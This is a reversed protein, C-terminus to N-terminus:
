YSQEVNARRHHEIFSQAECISGFGPTDPLSGVAGFREKVGASKVIVVFRSIGQPLPIEEIDYTTTMLYFGDKHLAVTLIADPALMYIHINQTYRMCM